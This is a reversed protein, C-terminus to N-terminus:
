RAQCLPISVTIAPPTGATSTLPSCAASASNVSREVTAAPVASCAWM